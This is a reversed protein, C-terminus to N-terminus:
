VHARGIRGPYVACVDSRYAGYTATGVLVGDVFVPVSSIATGVVSTNDIAWGEVSVMGSLVAGPVPVDINVYPPANVKPSAAFNAATQNASLNDFTQSPPSFSYGTASPTVTYTGAILGNVCYNGSADTTTSGGAVGSLSLNAGGLPAGGSVTVQGSITYGTSSPDIQALFADYGGANTSQFAGATVPFDTSGTSGTVMVTGASSIAVGWVQDEQSGGLYSSALLATAGASLHAVFGNLSGHNSTQWAGALLFNSSATYGGLWVDGASGLALSTAADSGSGGLLTAYVVSSAGPSLMVLFADYSGAPAPQFVSPTTPFDQSFTTGAVYLNGSGDIALANAQDLGSGGLYSVTIWANGASNLCAILADGEGGPNPQVAALTPLDTSNTYGAVCVNGAPDLALSQAQDTGSGGLLTAYLAASGTANLKVIFADDPGGGYTPQPAGPTTPFDTSSTYGAIYANGPQDIAIGTAYDNGAGGIYSAYVLTGSPNLKAAFGDEGGGSVPQWAGQTAPFDSGGTSGAVYVNGTTDVAIAQGSSNANSSLITTYVISGNPSLKTVFADRSASLGSTPSFSVSGTTGTIYINGSGDVAVAYGADYGAGGLYSSYSLVPDIWLRQHRDYKGLRFVATDGHLRFGAGVPVRKGAIEQWAVPRHQRLKGARTEAVLNGASDM